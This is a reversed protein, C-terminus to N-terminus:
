APALTPVVVPGSWVLPFAAIVDAGWVIPFVVVADEDDGTVDAGVEVM